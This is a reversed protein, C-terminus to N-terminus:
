RQRRTSPPRFHRRATRCAGTQDGNSEDANCCGLGRTLLASEQHSGSDDADGAAPHEVESRRRASSRRLVRVQLQFLTPMGGCRCLKGIQPGISLAVKNDEPAEWDVSLHPQAGITFGNALTYTFNFTGSMQNTDRGDGGVKFWQQVFGYAIYNKGLLTAGVDPGIQWTDQGLERASATPFAFTPGAGLVLRGGFLPRAVAAGLVADGFGVTRESQGNQDLHPLSNVFTVVPRLYLGWERSLPVSLLPQFMLNSQVRNGSDLPMDMWNTNQQMQLLWRSSFPNAAEQAMAAASQGENGSTQTGSSTTAQTQAFGVTAACAFALVVVLSTVVRQQAM